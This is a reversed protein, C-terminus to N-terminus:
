EVNSLSSKCYECKFTKGEKFKQINEASISVLCLPCNGCLVSVRIDYFEEDSTIVNHYVLEEQLNKNVEALFATLQGADNGVTEIEFTKSEGNLIFYIVMTNKKYKTKGYYWAEGFRDQESFEKNVLKIDHKGLVSLVLNFIESSRELNRIAYVKKDRNKLNRQLHKVRALNAEDDTFFMPCTISVMKPEITVAQQRDRADFYSIIANIPSNLCNIPDLFLSVTKKENVGIKHILISDGKREYNPEHTTWKLADPIDFQIKFNTLVARTSNTLAMKFRVQGGILEHGSKISLARTKEETKILTDIEDESKIGDEDFFITPTVPTIDFLEGMKEQLEAQVNIANEIKDQIKEELEKFESRGITEKKAKAYIPMTDAAIKIAETLDKNKLSLARKLGNDAELCLKEIDLQKRNINIANIKNELKDCPIELKEKEIYEIAAQFEKRAKNWEDQAEQIKENKHAKRAAIDHKNGSEIYMCNKLKKKARNSIEIFKEKKAEKILENLVTIANSFDEGQIIREVNKYKIMLDDMKKARELEKKEKKEKKVEKDYRWDSIKKKGYISMFIILALIVIVLVITIIVPITLPNSFLNKPDHGKRVKERDNFGDGDTDSDNPDTGHINVEDGDSLGDGDTDSDNPDTDSRYEELNSLGDGDGDLSADGNWTASLGYRAEWEDSIGDGDTDIVTGKTGDLEEIYGLNGILFNNSIITDVCNGLSIGYGNNYRINNGSIINNRCRELRIGNLNNYSINNGSIYNNNGEIWIGCGKNNDISNESFINNSGGGIIGDDKNNNVINGSVTNNNSDYISIGAFNNNNATNGSIINNNSNGISIGNDMNSANNNILQSNLVNELRIGSYNAKLFTSNRIIFYVKSNSIYICNDNEYNDDIIVNEIIYPDNLTGSGSCWDNYAAIYAWESDGNIIISSGTLDWYRTSKLKIEINIEDDNIIINSFFENSFALLSFLMVLTLLLTKLKSKRRM